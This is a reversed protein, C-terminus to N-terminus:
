IWPMIHWNKIWKGKFTKRKILAEVPRKLTKRFGFNIEM